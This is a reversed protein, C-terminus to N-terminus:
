LVDLGTVDVGRECLLRGAPRGMFYSGNILLLGLLLFVAFHEFYVDPLEHFGGALV